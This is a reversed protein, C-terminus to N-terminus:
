HQKTFRLDWVRDQVVSFATPRGASDRRFIVTGLQGSFTDGYIPTLTVIADPRRELVLSTGEVAVTITTEADSSVYQGVLEKLQEASLVDPRVREYDDITGFADTVRVVGERDIEWTQGNLTVFSSSSMTVLVPGGEVRLRNQDRVLKLAVGTEKNRYTGQLRDIEDSTLTHKPRPAAPPKLQYALHLDAVEHAYQQANASSANCLVAVSLRQNPYRSLFARYAATAGGHSVEALGKYTGISLGFAYHHSRGDSFRGPRQQEALFAADGVVPSVFNENWRLLDEVTTLLGGNGHVNEFPMEIHFGDPAESYAIARGKVIRTHDDRWSTRTMGVPEFIRRRTFESFTIGSVRSVIIAALNYGSNSYSWRTGPAFNLASQRGLIELVHSHTHVRTTRPWGAIAAVSGWDRLGSTHTLMHRITIPANHDPLEPVYKRVSDDLSLKGERALLLVAAATFQKSISGAEFITEPTNKVDHELDAMGYAKALTTGGNNSVGVACGPTSTSWKAFVRDVTPETDGRSQAPLAASIVSVAIAIFLVAVAAVIVSRLKM